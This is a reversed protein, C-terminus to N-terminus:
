LKEINRRPLSSCIASQRPRHAVSDRRVGSSPMVGKVLELWPMGNLWAAKATLM